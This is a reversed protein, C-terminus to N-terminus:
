RPVRATRLAEKGTSRRLSKSSQDCGQHVAVGQGKGDARCANNIQGRGTVKVPYSTTSKTSLFKANSVQNAGLRQDETDGRTSARPRRRQSRFRPAISARTCPTKRFCSTLGSKRVRRGQRRLGPVGSPCSAAEKSTSITRDRFQCETCFVGFESTAVQELPQEGFDLQFASM